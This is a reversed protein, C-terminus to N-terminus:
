NQAIVISFDAKAIKGKGYFVKILAPYKGNPPIVKNPLLVRHYWDCSLGGPFENPELKNPPHYTEYEFKTEDSSKNELIIPSSTYIKVLMQGTSTEEINRIFHNLIMLTEGNDTKKFTAKIEKNALPQRDIGLIEIQPPKKVLGLETKIERQFAALEAKSEKQSERLSIRENNYNWGLVITIVIAFISLYWKIDDFRKETSGLRKDLEDFRSKIEDDM